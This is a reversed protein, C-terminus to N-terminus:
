HIYNALLLLIYENKENTPTQIKFSKNLLLEAKDLDKHDGEMELLAFHHLVSRSNLQSSVLQFLEKKLYIPIEKEKSNPGIKSILFYEIKKVEHRSTSNIERLVEM